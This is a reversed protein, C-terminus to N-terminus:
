KGPAVSWREAKVCAYRVIVANCEAYDASVQVCSSKTVKGGLICSGPISMQPLQSELHRSAACGSLSMTLLAMLALVAKM